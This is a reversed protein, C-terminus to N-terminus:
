NADAVEPPDGWTTAEDVMDRIKKAEVALAISRTIADILLAWDKVGWEVQDNNDLEQLAPELLGMILGLRDAGNKEQGNSPFQM